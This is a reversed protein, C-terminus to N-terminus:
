KKDILYYEMLEELTHEQVKVAVEEKRFPHWLTLEDPNQNEHGLILYEDKTIYIDTEIGNLKLSQAIKFSEM